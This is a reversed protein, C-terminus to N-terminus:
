GVFPRAAGIIGGPAYMGRLTVGIGPWSDIIMGGGVYIAIHGNYYLVDGRQIASLSVPMFYNSRYWNMSNYTQQPLWRHNYPNYWGMDMGTAYLCQMVLGSCDVAGGPATSYPEIYRTGLYEYARQIFANVCDERTANYPIRSPTVYTFEGTCYSPLVVTNCSVQPYGAPNQWGIYLYREFYSNATSGPAPTGKGTISIQIAEVQLGLKTTGANAGNKAWGLWGYEEIHVRYWIDFYQAADGTLSISIAQLEHGQGPAGADGSSVADQWGIDSLHARYSVGGDLIDSAFDVRFAELARGAGVTGSVGGEAINSGWGAGTGYTSYSIAPATVFALGAGPVDSGKPLICIEIAEVPSSLGESGASAGNSAWGLWGIDSVHVRYWIDYEEEFGGSLSLRVAEIAHRNGTTGATGGDTVPNQWGIHAVHAQYEVSGDGLGPMQLTFAELAHSQGTTGLTFSPLGEDVKRNIWGVDSVHSSFIATPARFADETSGPAAGDKEVLVIEIAEVQKSYGQSGARDGNSAWGLWGFDATHVRYWIDYAVVADGTLRLQVAEIALKQGTTGAVGSQWDQWGLDQVHARIEVSGQGADAGLRVDLAEMRLSRKETGAMEGDSVLDMWGLEEVHARYGVGFSLFAEDTSGPAVAEKPLICIDLAELRHGYGQSGASEGDHAWGLWGEDSVHARYWISHTAALEGSLELRVAELAVGEGTTGVVDGTPIDEQWGHTASYVDAVIGSRYAEQQGQDTQQGEGADEAPQMQVGFRMAELSLSEGTTGIRALGDLGADADILQAGQWGIESVHGEVTLVEEVTAANDSIPESVPPTAGAEVDSIVSNTNNPTFGPDDNTPAQSADGKVTGGPIESQGSDYSPIEGDGEITDGVVVEGSMPTRDGADDALLVAAPSSAWVLLTSLVFVTARRAIVHPSKM